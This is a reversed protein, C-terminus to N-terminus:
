EPNKTEEDTQTKRDRKGVSFKAETGNLIRKINAFHKICVLVTIFLMWGPYWHNFFHSMPVAIIAALIVGASVMRVALVALLVIGILLLAFIPEVALLVGFATAVGKGGKLEYAAPWMHGLIIALGCLMGYSLGVFHMAALVPLLGKLVDVVFTIAGAKKGITRLVNTTGANGSGESRVDVGYAKGLMIAPNINGIFYAAVILFALLLHNIPISQLSEFYSVAEEM